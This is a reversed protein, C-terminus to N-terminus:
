YTQKSVLFSQEMLKPHQNSYELPHEIEEVQCKIFTGIYSKRVCNHLSTTALNIM